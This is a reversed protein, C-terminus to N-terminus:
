SHFTIQVTIRAHRGSIEPYEELKPANTSEGHCVKITITDNATAIQANQKGTPTLTELRRRSGSADLRFRISSRQM